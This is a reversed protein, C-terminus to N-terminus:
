SLLCDPTLQLSPARDGVGLSFTFLIFPSTSTTKVNLAVVDKLVHEKPSECVVVIPHTFRMEGPSEAIAIDTSMNRIPDFGVHAGLQRLCSTLLCIRPSDTGQLGQGRYLVKM